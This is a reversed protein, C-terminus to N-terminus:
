GDLAGSNEIMDITGQLDDLDSLDIDPSEIADLPTLRENVAIGPIVPYEFTEDAFYQQANQGLLYLVLRQALGPQDSYSIVGVGAVNILSGADGAPFFHQAIPTDPNETIFRFMYYHNSIGMLVEGDIVGQYLQTNGDFPVAGNAVMGALWAETAEDGLLVRLATVQSQFSGNTPAWGVLGAYQPDTLDLISDPLEIGREELLVPNYALVRARGSIGVWLNDPSSFTDISREMIDSPLPALAGAKALAGLAGGDQAIYVDAPTNEGEALIQNAVGSTSGYLVEVQVGTEETFQQLIPAILSESRGSYVTLTEPNDQAIAPLIGIMLLASLSLFTILFRSRIM